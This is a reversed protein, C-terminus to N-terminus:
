PVKPGAKEAAIGEERIGAKQIDAPQQQRM